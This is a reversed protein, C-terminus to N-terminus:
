TWYIVCLFKSYPNARFQICCKQVDKLKQNNFVKINDTILIRNEERACRGVGEPYDPDDVIKCSVGANNLM